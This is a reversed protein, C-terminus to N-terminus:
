KRTGQNEQSEYNKKVKNFPLIFRVTMARFIEFIVSESNNEERESPVDSFNSQNLEWLIMNNENSDEEQQSSEARKALSKERLIVLKLHKRKRTDLITHTPILILIPSPPTM